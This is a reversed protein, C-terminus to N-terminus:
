EELGEGGIQDMIDALKNSIEGSHEIQQKDRWLDPRRNKLWFIQATTDPIVEKTVRKTVVGMEETIEIYKYGLARKLLANEVQRDIVEKGKKLTELIEMHSNKWNNLTSVAIGMNAAIQEETLGDRAWGEIKLLGEPTLWDHYKGKAM